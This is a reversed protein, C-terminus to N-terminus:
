CCARQEEQFNNENDIQIANYMAKTLRPETTLIKSLIKKHLYELILISFLYCMLPIPLGNNIEKSWSVSFNFFPFIILSSGLSLRLLKLHFSNQHKFHRTPSDSTYCKGLLCLCQIVLFNSQHINKLEGQYWSRM